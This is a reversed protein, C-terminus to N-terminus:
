NGDCLRGPAIAAMLTRDTVPTPNRRDAHAYSTAATANTKRQGIKIRGPLMLRKPTKEVAGNSWDNSIGKVSVAHARHQVTVCLFNAVSASAAITVDRSRGLASLRAITAVIHPGCIRL